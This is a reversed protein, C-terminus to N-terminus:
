QRSTGSHKKQRRTAQDSSHSRSNRSGNSLSLLSHELELTTTTKVFEQKSEDFDESVVVHLTLV